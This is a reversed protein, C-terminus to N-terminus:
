TMASGKNGATPGMKIFQPKLRVTHVPVISIPGKAFHTHNLLTYRSGHDEQDHRQYLRPYPRTEPLRLGTEEKCRPCLKSAANNM